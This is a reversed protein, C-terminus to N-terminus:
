PARSPENFDDAFDLVCVTGFRTHPGCGVGIAHYDRELLNTRHGRGRVGDDIFLSMVMVAADVATLADAAGSDPVQAFVTDSAPDAVDLRRGEIADCWRANIFNQQRQLAPHTLTLPM